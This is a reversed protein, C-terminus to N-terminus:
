KEQEELPEEKVAKITLYGTQFLLPLLGLHDLDYSDFSQEGSM